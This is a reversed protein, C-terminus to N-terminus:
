LLRHGRQVPRAAHAIEALGALALLDDPSEQLAQRYYAAAADWQREALATNGQVTPTRQPLQRVAYLSYSQDDVLWEFWEPALRLQIDLNGASPTIVYGVDYKQLVAIADETLYRSRFFADQDILRQLAEDQQDAPFIESTTPIRHAIINAHAAYAPISVSLDQDALVTAAGNLTTLRDLEALLRQPTPYYYPYGAREQLAALNQVIGPSLLLAAVIATALLAYPTARGEWRDRAAPTSTFLGALARMAVPLVRDVAMAIILAYPLMWVFRWLIWPMVLDGILPTLLPNFMVFLIALSTSLVFQAGINKRIGKLLLPLLLLALIYAPELIINPDSLYRDLSFLILRRRNMNVGFRWILFPDADTYTESATVQSLDPLPGYVSLTPVNVFPLAPVLKEGVPWGAISTPFSAAM